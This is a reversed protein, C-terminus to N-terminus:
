VDASRSLNKKTMKGSTTRPLPETRLEWLRPVKFSPLRSRAETKLRDATVSAGEEIVVFAKGIEGWDDDPVGVVAAEVVDPLEALAREVEAPYVNLGGSIIMDKSRGAVFVFGDEDRSALDGSHMWGDRWLADTAERNGYYGLTSAPSRCVIEGVEGVPVERGEEDVVRVSAISCAKGASGLKDAAHKPDLWLMMTPFESMGFVQILESSPLAEEFAIMSEPPVPEGGTVVTRLSSLDHQPIAGSGVVRKLVTPVLLTHTVREREVTAAFADPDFNTSPNLVFTGGAMFAALAFDHFGAAWCLAPVGLVVDAPGLDFDPLQHYTNWLVTAHSHMAGKPRGTTGSTYQLLLLDDQHAQCRGLRDKSFLTEYDIADAQRTGVSVHKREGGLERAGGAIEWLADESVVWSAGADDLIFAMEEATILYNIPVVVGGLKALAFFLEVWEIGNYLLVGVREGKKFGANKLGAALRDVRDELEGYALSRAEFRLAVQGKSAGTGTAPKDLLDAVTYQQM